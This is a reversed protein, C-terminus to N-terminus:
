FPTPNDNKTITGSDVPSLQAWISFTTPLGVPTYWAAIDVNESFEHVGTNVLKTITEQVNLLSWIQVNSVDVGRLYWDTINLHEAMAVPLQIFQVRVWTQTKVDWVYVDCELQMGGINVVSRSLNIDIGVTRNNFLRAEAEGSTGNLASFLFIGNEAFVNGDSDILNTYIGVQEIDSLNPLPLGERWAQWAANFEDYVSDPIGGEPEFLLDKIYATDQGSNGSSDKIYKFEVTDGAAITISLPTYTNNTGGQNILLTTNHTIHLRDSSESSVNWEFTLTGAVDFKLRYWGHKSDTHVTSQLVNDVQKWPYAPDNTVTRITDLYSNLYDQLKPQGRPYPLVLRIDGPRGEQTPAEYNAKIDWFIGGLVQVYPNRIIIM